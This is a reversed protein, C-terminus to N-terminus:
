VWFRELTSRIGQHVMTINRQACQKWFIEQTSHSPETSILPLDENQLKKFSSVQYASWNDIKLVFICTRAEGVSSQTLAGIFSQIKRLGDL